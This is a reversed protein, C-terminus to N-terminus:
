AAPPWGHREASAKRAWEYLADYVPFLAELLARDDAALRGMGLSVALLGASQPALDLRDTDAGRIITALRQLAADEGLEFRELFTDFSCREGVHSLEAGPIDYPVADVREAEPFVQVTPVFLFEPEHDIRRAILWPCAVRDIVAKERTIWRM